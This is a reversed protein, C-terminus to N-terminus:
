EGNNEEMRIMQTGGRVVSLRDIEQVARRIASEHVDHTLIILPVASGKRREQQMCDSVSVQHGGLVKFIKALVGPRDIVHLRLYYRSLISSINEVGIRRRAAAMPILPEEDLRKFRKVIDVLDSVVASATPFSGAGRGYLLIDGVRDGRMLVANFSGNVNALIHDKRLLTPQVRAEVGGATRKAIALLKIRYGFENAFAIDESSIRQIGECYIDEFRVKGRFGFRILIALKHAADMGNIDLTPDAEAYGKEQAKRLADKFDSGESTMKTLIYNSTGNIIAFVSQLENAVLGERLTKLVPIGGGVSAEFFVWKKMRAALDFIEDGREALLAKNATVVHKGAKLAQTVYKFADDIGGILEVIVDISPDEIVSRVDTTLLTKPVNVLRKRSKNRVAIKAFEFSIGIERSFYNKKQTLISYVGSGIQGLGLLGIRIKKM